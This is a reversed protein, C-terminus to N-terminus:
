NSKIIKRSIIQMDTKIIMFYLGNSLESVNINIDSFLNCNKYIIKGTIDSISIEIIEEYNNCLVNLNNNFPNPFVNVSLLKNNDNIGNIDRYDMAIAEPSVDAQFSGTFNGNIDYIKGEGFSFYDTTTIYFNENIIDFGAAAIYIYSASGPDPIIEPDIIQHTNINYSGIGNDLGLYLINDTLAVGKGVVANIINSSFDLTYIDYTSVSGTSGGYPTRNVSYINNENSYLNYIGVADSGLNIERVLNKEQLDIVAIKGETAQWDGPIAVYATDNEAVIGAADASINSIDAIFSLTNANFIKIYIGDAPPGNIDTQRSLILLDNHIYLKNLNSEAIAAVREYNDINFKVISHQASVFAFNEKIVIDQVSETFIDGFVTTTQGLPDYTSLTVHDSPDGYVGGNCIIVQKTETQSVAMEYMAILTLIIIANLFYNKKM